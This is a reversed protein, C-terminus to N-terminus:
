FIQFVLRCVVQNLKLFCSGKCAQHGDVCAALAKYGRKMSTADVLLKDLIKVSAFPTLTKLVQSAM